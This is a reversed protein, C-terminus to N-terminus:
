ENKIVFNNPVSCRLEFCFYLNEPGVGAGGVETHFNSDALTHVCTWSGRKYIKVESGVPVAMMQFLIGDYYIICAHVYVCM